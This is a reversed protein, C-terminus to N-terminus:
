AGGGASGDTGPHNEPSGIRSAIGAIRSAIIDRANGHEVSVGGAGVNVSLHGDGGRGILKLRTEVRLRDRPVDPDFKTGDERIAEKQEDAILLAELAMQDDRIAIADNYDKAHYRNIWALLRIPGLGTEEAIQAISKRAVVGAMVEEVLGPRDVVALAETAAAAGNSATHLGNVLDNM